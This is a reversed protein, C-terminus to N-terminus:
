ASTEKRKLLVHEEWFQKNLAYEKAPQGKRAFPRAYGGPFATIISLGKSTERAVICFEVTLELEDVLGVDVTFGDRVERILNKETFFSKKTLGVTGAMRGDTLTYTLIITIPPQKIIRKPKADQLYLLLDSPTRYTEKLFYSGALNGDGFHRKMHLQGKSTLYFNYTMDCM